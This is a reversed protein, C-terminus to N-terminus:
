KKMVVKHFTFASVVLAGLGVFAEDMWGLGVIFDSPEPILMYILALSMILVIIGAGVILGGIALQGRKM